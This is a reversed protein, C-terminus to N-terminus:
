QCQFTINKSTKLHPNGHSKKICPVNQTKCSFMGVVTIVGASSVSSCTFLSSAVGFFIMRLHGDQKLGKTCRKIQTLNIYNQMCASHQATWPQGSKPPVEIRCAHMTSHHAPNVAKPPFKLKVWKDWIYLPLHGTYRPRSFHIGHAGSVHQQLSLDGEEETNWAHGWVDLTTTNIFDATQLLDEKSSCLKRCAHSRPALATNKSGQPTPLVASHAPTQPCTEWPCNVTHSLSLCYLHARQRCHGAQLWLITFQQHCQLHQMQDDSPPQAPSDMWDQQAVQDFGQGRLLCHNPQLWSTPPPTSGTTSSLYVTFVCACVLVRPKPSLAQNSNSVSPAHPLTTPQSM